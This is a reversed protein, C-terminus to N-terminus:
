DAHSPLLHLEDWSMPTFFPLRNFEGFDLLCNLLASITSFFDRSYMQVHSMVRTRDVSDFSLPMPDVYDRKNKRVGESDDYNM